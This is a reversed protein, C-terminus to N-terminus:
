RVVLFFCLPSSAFRCVEDVSDEDDDDDPDSSSEEEEYSADIEPQVSAPVPSEPDLPDQPVLDAAHSPQDHSIPGAETLRFAEELGSLLECATDFRDKPRAQMCKVIVKELPDPVGALLPLKRPHERIKSKMRPIHFLYMSPKSAHSRVSESDRDVDAALDLAMPEFPTYSTLMEHWIIGITFVDSCPLVTATATATMPRGGGRPVDEPIHEPSVYLLTGPIQDPLTITADHLLNKSIGFDVIVLRNTSCILINETKLDRHVIGNQHVHAMGSALEMVWKKTHQWPMRVLGGPKSPDYWQKLCQALTIGDIHEMVLIHFTRSYDIFRVVNDHRIEKLIKAERHAREKLREKEAEDEVLGLDLKKVAVLRGFDKVSLAKFVQGQAGKGLYSFVVPSMNGERLCFNVFSMTDEDRIQDQVQTPGYEQRHTGNDADIQEFLREIEASTPTQMEEVDPLPIGPFSSTIAGLLQRLHRLEERLLETSMAKGGALNSYYRVAVNELEQNLEPQPRDTRCGPAKVLLLHLVRVAWNCCERTRIMDMAEKGLDKDMSEVMDNVDGPSSLWQRGKVVCFAHKFLAALTHALALHYRAFNARPM